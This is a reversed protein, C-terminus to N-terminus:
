GTVSGSVTAVAMRIPLGADHRCATSARSVDPPSMSATVSSCIRAACRSSDLL